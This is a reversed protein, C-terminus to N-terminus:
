RYSGVETTYQIIDYAPDDDEWVDGETHKKKTKLYCTQIKSKNNFKGTVINRM